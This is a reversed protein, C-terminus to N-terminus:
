FDINFKQFYWDDDYKRMKLYENSQQWVNSDQLRTLLHDLDKRANVIEVIKLLRQKNFHCIALWLMNYDVESYKIPYPHKSRFVHEVEVAPNIMIRYGFLWMRISIEIDEFGWAPFNEEFGGIHQFVEKRIAICGGPGIPIESIKEPKSLWTFAFQHNITGGYGIVGRNDSAAIGPCIAGIDDEAIGKVLETIWNSQDIILHADCFILVDGQAISAGLNRARAPGLGQRKLLKVPWRYSFDRELFDCCGDESGDDIVVLEHLENSSTTEMSKLMKELHPKENRCPVIISVKQAL